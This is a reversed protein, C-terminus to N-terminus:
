AKGHRRGKAQLHEFDPYTTIPALIDSQLRYHITLGM